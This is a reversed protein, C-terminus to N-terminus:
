ESGPAGVASLEAATEILLDALKTRVLCMM